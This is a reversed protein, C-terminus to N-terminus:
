ERYYIAWEQTLRFNKDVNNDSLNFYSFGKTYREIRFTSPSLYSTKSTAFLTDLPSQCILWFTAINSVLM